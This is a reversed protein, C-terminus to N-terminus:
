RDTTVSLESGEFRIVVDGALDTRLVLAGTSRLWQLVRPVPHGFRNPGVSVVAVRARVAQFFPLISTGAGHHPVNLVMARLPRGGDLMAQQAAGEPENAFLVTAERHRLLIVISDNNPDSNTSRWCRDPSLIDLRLDGVVVADGAVPHREPIAEDRIARLFAQYPPSDSEPTRCGSDFVVSVPIRALVAPLGVFHDLHPHTAVVADLRKIGLAALKTAVIGPEPGGDILIAAGGPSRVLAADGQGVDFFRVELTSPPGARLAASWVFLPIAL